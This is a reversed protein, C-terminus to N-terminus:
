AILLRAMRDLVKFKGSAVPADEPIVPMPADYNAPISMGPPMSIETNPNGQLMDNPEIARKIQQLVPATVATKPAIQSNSSNNAKPNNNPKM